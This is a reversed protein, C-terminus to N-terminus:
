PAVGVEMRVPPHGTGLITLYVPAGAMLRELEDPMPRWATTMTPSMEGTAKDFEMGDRLPLGTYGQSKGLIRTVGSIMDILM